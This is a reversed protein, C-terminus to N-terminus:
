SDECSLVEKQVFDDAKVGISALLYDTFVTLYATGCEPNSGFKQHVAVLFSEATARGLLKSEDVSMEILDPKPKKM